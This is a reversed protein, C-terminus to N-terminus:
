SEKQAQTPAPFHLIFLRAQTAKGQKSVPFVQPLQKNGWTELPKKAELLFQLEKPWSPGLAKDAM